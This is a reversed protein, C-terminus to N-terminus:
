GPVSGTSTAATSISPRSRTTSAQAPTRHRRGPRPGHRRAGPLLPAGQQDGAAVPLAGGSPQLGPDAAVLHDTRPTARPGAARHPRILRTRNAMRARPRDKPGVRACDTSLTGHGPHQGDPAHIPGRDGRRGRRTQGGVAGTATVSALRTM